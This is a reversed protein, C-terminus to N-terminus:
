TDSARTPLWPLAVLVCVVAIFRRSYNLTTGAIHVERQHVRRDVDGIYDRDIRAIVLGFLPDMIM